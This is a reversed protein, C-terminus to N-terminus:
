LLSHCWFMFFLETEYHVGYIVGTEAFGVHSVVYVAM